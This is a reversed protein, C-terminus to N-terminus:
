VNTLEQLMKCKMCRGFKQDLIVNGKCAICKYLVNFKPVGIVEVLVLITLNEEDYNEEVDEMDSLVEVTGDKLKSLYHKGQYVRTVMNCLKYSKGETILGIDDAWM